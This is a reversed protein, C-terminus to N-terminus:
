QCNELPQLEGLLIATERLKAVASRFATAINSRTRNKKRALTSLNDGELVIAIAERERLTLNTHALLKEILDRKFIAEFDAECREDIILDTWNDIPSKSGLVQALEDETLHEDKRGITVLIM